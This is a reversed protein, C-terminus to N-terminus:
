CHWSQEGRHYPCNYSRCFSWHMLAHGEDTPKSFAGLPKRPPGSEEPHEDDRKLISDAWTEKVIPGWGDDNEKEPEPPTIDGQSGVSNLEKESPEPM